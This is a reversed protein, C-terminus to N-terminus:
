ARGCRIARLETGAVCADRRRPAKTGRMKFQAYKGIAGERAVFVELVANSALTGRELAPFRARSKKIRETRERFPCGGGDCTVTAKSGRPGVATLRTIKTRGDSNVSGSLRVIPFPSLLALDVPQAILVLRLQRAAGDADEVRLAVTHRGKTTFVTSTAPGDADDFAGDGDLDWTQSAIPGDADTATSVLQVPEGVIPPKPSTKFSVSPPRNRVDVTTAATDVGGGSSEVRLSVTRPGSSRYEMSATRGNADDFAGDGDLDWTMSAISEGPAPASASGDFEVPTRSLPSSPRVVFAAEPPNKQVTVDRTVTTSEGDADTVQLGVSVTGAAAFRHTVTAGVADGFQGDGNFDWSHASPDLPGEPDTATSSFTVDEGVGPTSPEFIFGGSPPAAFATQASAAHVVVFAIAVSLGGRLPRM